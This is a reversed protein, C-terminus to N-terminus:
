LRNQDDTLVFGWWAESSDSLKNIIIAQFVVQLADAPLGHQRLTRVAFLSQSGRSLRDNVHRSVSFKQSFTVGLM